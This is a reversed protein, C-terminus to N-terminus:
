APTTSCWRSRRPSRWTRPSRCRPSAGARPSRCTAWRSSPSCATSSPRRATCTPTTCGSSPTTPPPSRTPTPRTPGSTTRPSAPGRRGPRQPRQHRALPHRHQDPLHNTLVVEVKDGPEVRLWPGPVRGNYTWAKVVKGPSVEWDTIAATLRFQKTGDAKITPEIKQNGAEIEGAAYQEATALFDTVGKTMAEEMRKNMAKAEASVPNMAGIDMSSHDMGAMDDAAAAADANGGGSGDSIILTGTMGSDKHGSIACFIEYEGPDLSSVDLTGTEGAKLDPCSSAPTPSPWTTTWPRRQQHGRDLRRDARHDGAPTLAFESLAVAVPGADVAEAAM